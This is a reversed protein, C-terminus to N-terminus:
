VRNTPSSSWWYTFSEARGFNAYVAHGTYTTGQFVFIIYNQLFKTFMYLFVLFNPEIVSCVTSIRIFARPM